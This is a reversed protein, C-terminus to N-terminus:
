GLLNKGTMEPPIPIGLLGLVTPGLDALTGQPLKKTNGRLSNNIVHFPVPNNSHETDVVGLQSTYFFSTAPYKIMEDANGHDAIILVTGDRALVEDVLEGVCKDVHETAKIGAKLVGTHGVMDTNAFNVFYFHFKDKNIQEKFKDLVKYVSMEPKLDYTKVKPSSEIHFEEGPYPEGRQGRYYYTVMREKESEALCFQCKNSQSIVEPLPKPVTQTPYAIASVPLNKMYETMTVFHLNKIVKERKFTSTIVDEKVLPKTEDHHPNFDLKFDKITEFGDTVFAMTLQRPRDVRFNFFIVADNDDITAIPKGNQTVVSPDVFEDTKGSEYANKIAAIAGTVELGKGSVMADYAKQTRDWRKDRDMGYYRGGITAIRGPYKDDIKRIVNIGDQPPADRGDTMLHFFYNDFKNKKCFQLLAYFHETSSHVYGSGVLGIFHLKSNHDRVHKIASYFAKNEYFKHREIENDIKTLSQYVVRGAGLTLHGVESNGVTNAPLGVSEGCAILQGSPYMTPYSDMNPTNALYIANGQSPPAIGWGDLILLVVPKIKGTKVELDKTKSKRGFGLFSM